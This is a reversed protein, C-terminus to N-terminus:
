ASNVAPAASQIRELAKTASGRVEERADGLASILAPIAAPGIRGLTEAARACVGAAADYLAIIPAWVAIIPAWVAKVVAPREAAVPGIRGLAEAAHVRVQPANLATTLPPVAKAAAPGIRGLAEAANVRVELNNDRLLSILAPVAAAAVAAAKERQEVAPKFDLEWDQKVPERYGLSTSTRPQDKGKLKRFFRVAAAAAVLLAAVSTTLGNGSTLSWDESFYQQLEHGAIIGGAKVIPFLWAALLASYIIALATGHNIKVRFLKDYGPMRQSHLGGRSALRRPPEPPPAPDQQDLRHEAASSPSFMVENGSGVCGLVGELVKARHVLANYLQSNRLDYLVV